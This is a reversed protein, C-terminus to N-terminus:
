FGTKYIPRTVFFLNLINPHDLNKIIQVEKRLKEEDVKKKSIIKVARAQKTAKHTAKKVQSLSSTGIPNPDIDYHESIPTYKFSILDKSTVERGKPGSSQKVGFCGGCKKFFSFM